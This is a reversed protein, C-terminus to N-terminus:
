TYYPKISNIISTTQNVFDASTFRLNNLQEQSILFRLLYQVVDPSLYYPSLSELEYALTTTDVVGIDRDMDIENDSADFTAQSSPIVPCNLLKSYFNLQQLLKDLDYGGILLNQYFLDVNPLAAFVGADVSALAICGPTLNNICSETFKNQYNMNEKKVAIGKLLIGSLDQVPTRLARIYSKLFLRKTNIESCANTYGNNTDQFSENVSLLVLLAVLIVLVALLVYM